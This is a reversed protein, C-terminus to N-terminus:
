KSVTSNKPKLHFWAAGLLFSFALLIITSPEPVQNTWILQSQIKAADSYVPGKSTDWLNLARVGYDKNGDANAANTAWTKIASALTSLSAGWNEDELSWIATQLATYSDKVQQSTGGDSGGYFFTNGGGIPADHLQGLLFTKYLFQTAASLPDQGNVAGGNGGFLAYPEVTATYTSGPSFHESYELCFTPFFTGDLSGSHISAQFSGGGYDATMPTPNAGSYGAVPYTDLKVSFQGGPLNLGQSQYVPGAHAATAFVVM